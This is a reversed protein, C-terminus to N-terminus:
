WRAKARPNMRSCPMGVGRARRSFAYFGWHYAPNKYSEHTRVSRILFWPERKQFVSGLTGGRGRTLRPFIVSLRRRRGSHFPFLSRCAKGCLICHGWPSGSYARTFFCVGPRADNMWSFKSPPSKRAATLCPHRHGAARHGCWPQDAPFHARHGGRGPADERRHARPHDSRVKGPPAPLAKRRRLLCYM